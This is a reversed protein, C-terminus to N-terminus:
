KSTPKRFTLVNVLKMQPHKFYSSNFGQYTIYQVANIDGGHAGLTLGKIGSREGDKDILIVVHGYWKKNKTYGYILLDGPQAEQFTATSLAGNRYIRSMFQTGLFRDYPHGIKQYLQWTFNSCDIGSDLNTGGWQYRTGISPAAATILKQLLPSTQKLRELQNSSLRVVEVPESAQLSSVALILTWQIWAVVRNLSQRSCSPFPLRTKESVANV